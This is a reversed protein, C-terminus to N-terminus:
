SSLRSTQDTNQKRRKRWRVLDQLFSLITGVISAFSLLAILEDMVSMSQLGGCPDFDVFSTQDPAITSQPIPLHSTHARVSEECAHHEDWARYAAIATSIVAILFWILTQRSILNTANQTM